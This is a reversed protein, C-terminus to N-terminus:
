KFSQITEKNILLELKTFVPVARCCVHATELFTMDAAATGYVAELM